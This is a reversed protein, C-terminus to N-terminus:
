KDTKAPPPNEVTGLIQMERLTVQGRQVPVKVRVLGDLQRGFADSGALALAPLAETFNNGPSRVSLRTVWLLRPRHEKKMYQYDYAMLVVFYREENLDLNMTLEEPSPMIKRREKDLSRKYGLLAANREIAGAAGSQASTQMELAANVDGADAIGVDAIGQNYKTLAGNLAEAAYTKQPDEYTVTTGWHVMILINASPVDSTPFYNQKALSPLLSRTVDAFKIKSESSDITPGGMYHGETFIYTERQPKGEADVPRVYTSRATASIAISESPAAALQGTTTARLTFIFVAPLSLGLRPTFRLRLRKM